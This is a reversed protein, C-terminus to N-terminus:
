APLLPLLGLDRCCDALRARVLDPDVARGAYRTSGEAFRARLLDLDLEVTGSPGRAKRFFRDALSM